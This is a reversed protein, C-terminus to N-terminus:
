TSYKQVYRMSMWAEITVDSVVVATVVVVMMAGFAAAADADTCANLWFGGVGAAAVLRAAEVPTVSSPFPFPSVVGVPEFVAVAVLPDAECNAVDPPASFFVPPLTSPKIPHITSRM